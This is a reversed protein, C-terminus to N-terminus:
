ATGPPTAIGRELAYHRQRLKLGVPWVNIMQTNPIQYWGLGSPIRREIGGSNDGFRGGIARFYQGGCRVGVRQLQLQDVRQTRCGSLGHKAGNWDERGARLHKYGTRGRQGDFGDV